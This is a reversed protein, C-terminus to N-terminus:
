LANRKQNYISSSGFTKSKFTEKETNFFKKKKAITENFLKKIGKTNIEDGEISHTRPNPRKIM